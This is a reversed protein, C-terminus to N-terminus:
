GNSTEKSHPRPPAPPAPPKAYTPPPNINARQLDLEAPTKHQWLLTDHGKSYLYTDCVVYVAAFIWFAAWASM